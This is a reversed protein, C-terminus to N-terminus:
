YANYELFKINEEVFSKYCRNIVQFNEESLDNRNIKISYVNLEPNFLKLTTLASTYFGIYTTCRTLFLSVIEISYNNDVVQMNGLGYSLLQKNDEDPHPFYVVKKDKYTTMVNKIYRIYQTKGLVNFKCLPQGLIVVDVLRLNEDIPISCINDRLYSYKNFIITDYKNGKLNFVTYFKIRKPIYEDQKKIMYLRLLRGEISFRKFPLRDALEERRKEDILLSATGDDVVYLNDSNYTKSFMRLLHRSTSSMYHGIICNSYTNYKILLWVLIFSIWPIIRDKDCLRTLKYTRNIVKKYCELQSILELQKMRNKDHALFIVDCSTAGTYKLCEISNIFQLQTSAIIISRM